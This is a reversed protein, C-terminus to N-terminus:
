LYSIAQYYRRAINAIVAAKDTGNIIRRANVWEDKGINGDPTKSLYDLFRKGTFLGVHMGHFMIEAAYEPKMALDPSAVLDIPQRFVQELHRSAAAYNNKWTLQVYGRGCYAAGDGVRTNGMRRARAPNRGGPGYNLEFYQARGYERIPQMRTDTEHHTTGLAYALWRDDWESHVPEWQNLLFELGKVQGAKLTGGFLTLRVNDFFFKRNIM